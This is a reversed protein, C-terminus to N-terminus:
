YAKVITTLTLIGRFSRLEDGVNVTLVVDVDDAERWTKENKPIMKINYEGNM